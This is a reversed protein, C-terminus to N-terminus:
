GLVAYALEAGPWDRRGGAEAAKVLAVLKENVPTDLGLRNGLRVIEGNLFDIETPRGAAFDDAMSSRAHEDVKQLRLGITNFVLDPAALFAPVLSPPLPSLKAPAIGAASLVQLAERMSAALVRRYARQSLEARLTNGSLANVANNLNLLLKGWALSLADDVLTLRGPKGDLRAAVPELVADRQAALIGSTGRHWHGGGQWAVNFGVSGRLIKRGPLVAQLIDINSIGNQLSLVASGPPAHRGIERAAEATGTGKVTLLVLDAQALAEPTVSFRIAAPELRIDLGAHDTLRMGHRIVEGAVAERGVFTVDLGAAQWLGGVFCGISGAGLVAIKPIM